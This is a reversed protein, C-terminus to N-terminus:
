QKEKLQLLREQEADAARRVRREALRLAKETREQRLIAKYFANEDNLSVRNQIRVNTRAVLAKRYATVAEDIATELPIAKPKRGRM